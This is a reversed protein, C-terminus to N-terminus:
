GVSSIDEDLNNCINKYQEETLFGNMVLWIACGKLVKWLALAESNPDLEGAYLHFNGSALLEYCLNMTATYLDKETFFCNDSIRNRYERLLVTLCSRVGFPLVDEFDIVIEKVKALIETKGNYSKLAYPETKEILYYKNDKKAKLENSPAKHKKEYEDIDFTFFFIFYSVIIAIVFIGGLSGYTSDDLNLNYLFLFLPISLGAVWFLFGVFTKLFSLFTLFPSDYNDFTVRYKM